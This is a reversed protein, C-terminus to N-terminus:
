EVWGEAEIEGKARIHVYPAPLSCMPLLIPVIHSCYPLLIPAPHSLITIRGLSDVYGSQNLSSNSLPHCCAEDPWLVAMRTKPVDGIETDSM